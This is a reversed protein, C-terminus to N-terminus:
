CGRSTERAPAQAHTSLAARCLSRGLILVTVACHNRFCRGDPGPKMMPIIVERGAPRNDITLSFSFEAKEGPELPGQFCIADDRRIITGSTAHADDNYRVIGMPPLDVCVLADPEPEKGTNIIEIVVSIPDGPPTEPSGVEENIVIPRPGDWEAAIWLQGVPIGSQM